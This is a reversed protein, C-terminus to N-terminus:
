TVLKAVTEPTIQWYLAADEPKVLARYHKFIVAPSNGMEVATLNESKSKEFNYSGFSHLCLPGPYLSLESPPNM